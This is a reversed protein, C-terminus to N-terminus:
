FQLQCPYLPRRRPCSFLFRPTGSPFHDTILLCGLPTNVADRISTSGDPDPGLHNVNHLTQPLIPFPASQIPPYKPGRPDLIDVYMDAVLQIPLTFEPHPVGTRYKSPIM